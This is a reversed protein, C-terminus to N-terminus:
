ASSQDFTLWVYYVSWINRLNAEFAPTVPVSLSM